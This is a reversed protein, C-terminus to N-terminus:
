GSRPLIRRPWEDPARYPSQNEPFGNPSEQAPPSLPLCKGSKLHSFSVKYNRMNGDTFLARIEFTSDGPEAQDNISGDSNYPVSPILGFKGGIITFDLLAFSANDTIFDRINSRDSVVGDWTFDNAKCFRAAAKMSVFDIM